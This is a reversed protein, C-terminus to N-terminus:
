KDVELYDIAKSQLQKVVSQVQRLSLKLENSIEFQDRDNILLLVVQRETQSLGEIFCNVDIITDDHPISKIFCLRTSSENHTLVPADLSFISELKKITWAEKNKQEMIIKLQLFFYDEFCGYITRYTRIAHILALVGETIRDEAELGKYSNKCEQIVLPIYHKVVDAETIKAM